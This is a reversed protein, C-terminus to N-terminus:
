DDGFKITLFSKISLYKVFIYNLNGEFMSFINVTIKGWLIVNM